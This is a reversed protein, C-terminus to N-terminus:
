SLLELCLSRGWILLIFLLSFAYVETTKKRNYSMYATAAAIALYILIHVLLEALLCLIIPINIGNYGYITRASYFPNSLHYNKCIFILRCIWGYCALITATIGCIILKTKIINSKGLYTSSLLTWSKKEWEMSFVSAFALVIAITALLFENKLQKLGGQMWFVKSYGTDYAFPINESKVRDYKALIKEFQQYFSLIYEYKTRMNDAELPALEGEAEMCNIKEIQVNADAFREKEENILAEKESTLEGELAVMFDRYYEEGASIKYPIQSQMFGVLFLSLVIIIIAKNMIFIKYMEQSFVNLGISKIRFTKGNKKVVSGEYSFLYAVFNAVLLVLMLSIQMIICIYRAGVPKGFLNLNIYLGYLLDSKELGWLSIYRLIEFTSHLRFCKYLAIETLMFVSLVLWPLWVMKAHQAVLMLLLGIIYTAIIRSILVLLMMTALNINLSSEIYEPVSQIPLGLNIFGTVCGYWVYKFAFLIITVASTLILLAILKSIIHSARGRKTARNVYCLGTEKEDWILLMAFYAALVISLMDVVSFDLTKKIGKTAYYAPSVNVLAEHDRASKEINNKSFTDNKGHTEFISINNLKDRNDSIGEIYSRYSSILNYDSNVQKIFERETWIDGTFTVFQNFDETNKEHCVGELMYMTEKLFVGKEDETMNHLQQNLKKYASLPIEDKQYNMGYWLLFFQMVVIILTLLIYSKKKIVRELEMLIM